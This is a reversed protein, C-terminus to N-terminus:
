FEQAFKKFSLNKLNLQLLNPPLVKPRDPDNLEFSLFLTTGDVSFRNDM